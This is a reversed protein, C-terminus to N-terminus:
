RIRLDNDANPELLGGRRPAEVPVSRYQPTSPPWEPELRARDSLNGATSECLRINLLRKLEEVEAELKGVKRYLEDIEEQTSM